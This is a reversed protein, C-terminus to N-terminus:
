RVAADVTAGRNQAAAVVKAAWDERPPPAPWASVTRATAELPQVFNDLWLRILRASARVQNEELQRLNGPAYSNILFPQGPAGLILIRVLLLMLRARQSTKVGEM